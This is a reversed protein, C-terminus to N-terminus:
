SVYEEALTWLKKNVNLRQDINTLERVTQQRGSALYYTIGGRIIKEQVINFVEWLKDGQDAGRTPKLIESLPLYDQGDKWRTLIAKKAFDKKAAQSLNTNKFDDVCNMITPISTVVKDTIKQVDKM